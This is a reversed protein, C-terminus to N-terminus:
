YIFLIVLDVIACKQYNALRKRSKKYLMNIVITYIISMVSYDETEQNSKLIINVSLYIITTIM